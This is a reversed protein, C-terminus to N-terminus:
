SGPLQSSGDFLPNDLKGAFQLSGAQDTLDVMQRADRLQLRNLCSHKFREAFLATWTPHHMDGAGDRAALSLLRHRTLAWFMHADLVGAEDLVAALHRLVGDMVDTHISLAATEVDVIHRIRRIEPPVPRGPVDRVVAVEEGIDKFLARRPTHDPGVILIVNEGHPMFVLGHALLCRAVPLLYADLLARLWESAELRSREILEAVLPRGHPDVHLLAALTFAREDAALRPIPSERWLAAIMKTHPGEDSIGADSARHYADGTYGTAAVERLIGLGLDRLVPDSEVLRAVWDNVAPTDRMYRPSLGRTFGMNQVALATKVYGREPRTLDFFTRVSQQPRYGHGSEGLHVLDQRALDPAFAVAITHDWQHPHVPIIRYDAPDLGLQRLQDDCRALAETGFERLTHEREDLGDVTALHSLERRAALWVLRTTARAEPTYRHRDALGLGVRGNNAVFGPHGETMAAEITQLDAEALEQSPRDRHHLCFAASGLTAAIEELYIGMLHEPIGLQPALAIILAQADVEAEEGRVDRRVSGEDIVWHEMPLRRARFTWTEGGSRVTYRHSRAPRGPSPARPGVPDVRTDSPDPEPTLLREHSFEALAKACLHRHARRMAHGILHAHPEPHCPRASTPRPEAASSSSSSSIVWTRRGIESERYDSASCSFLLASKDPLQVPGLERFGARTNLRHVATNRVDPEVVVRRAPAHSLLPVSFATECIAGIVSATTGPVPTRTPAVLLHMGLDGCHHPYHGDLEVASPDYFVALGVPLGDLRVVFLRRHPSLIWGALFDEVQAVTTGRMGWYASRPHDLWAHATHASLRGGTASTDTTSASLDLATLTAIGAPTRVTCLLTSGERAGAATPTSPTTM